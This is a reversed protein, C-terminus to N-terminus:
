YGPFDPLSEFQAVTMWVDSAVLSPDDKMMSEAESPEVICSTGDMTLKVYRRKARAQHKQEALQESTM